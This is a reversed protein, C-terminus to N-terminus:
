KRAAAGLVGAANKLGSQGKRFRSASQPNQGKVKRAAVELIRFDGALFVVIVKVEKEIRSGRRGRGKQGRKRGWGKLIPIANFSTLGKAKLGNKKVYFYRKRVDIERTQMGACV